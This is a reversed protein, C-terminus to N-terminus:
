HVLRDVKVAPYEPAAKTSLTATDVVRSGIDRLLRTLREIPRAVKKADHRSKGLERDADAFFGAAAKRAAPDLNM